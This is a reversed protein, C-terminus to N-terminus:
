RRPLPTIIEERVMVAKEKPVVQIGRAALSARTYEVGYFLIACSYYVWVLLAVLSGAAGYVSAVTSKGLYLAILYRGISFLAAAIAAGSWVDKWRLKVDPLLKFMAAFLLTIVAFGVGMDVLRAVVPAWDANVHHTLAALATTLVLSVLLLFGITLVM